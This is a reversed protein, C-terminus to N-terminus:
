FERRHECSSRSSPMVERPVQIHKSPIEDTRIYIAGMAGSPPSFVSVSNLGRATIRVIRCFSGLKINTQNVIVYLM